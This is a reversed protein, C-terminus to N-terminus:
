GAGSGACFTQRLIQSVCFICPQRCYVCLIGHPLHLGSLDQGIVTMHVLAKLIGPQFEHHQGLTINEPRLLALLFLLLEVLPLLDVIEVVQLDTVIHHMLSVSQPYIFADLLDLHVVNDLVIQLDLVPVAAIQINKSGSQIHDM